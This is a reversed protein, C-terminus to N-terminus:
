KSIILDFPYCTSAQDIVIQIKNRITGLEDEDLQQLTPNESIVDRLFDKVDKEDLVTYNIDNYEQLVKYGLGHLSGVHYPIKHPLIKSLRNLMEM